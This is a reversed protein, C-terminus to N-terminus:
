SIQQKNYEFKYTKSSFFTKSLNDLKCINILYFKSPPKPNVGYVSGRDAGGMIYRGQTFPGICHDSKRDCDDVKTSGRLLHGCWCEVTYRNPCELSFLGYQACLYACDAVGGVSNPVNGKRSWSGGTKCTWGPPHM